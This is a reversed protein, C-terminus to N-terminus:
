LGKLKVNYLSLSVKNRTDLKLFLECMHSLSVNKLEVIPSITTQKLMIKISNSFFDINLGYVSLQSLKEYVFVCM